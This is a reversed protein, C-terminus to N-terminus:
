EDGARRRGFLQLVQGPKLLPRELHEKFFQSFRFMRDKAQQRAEAYGPDAALECDEPRKCSCTGKESGGLCTMKCYETFKPDTSKM